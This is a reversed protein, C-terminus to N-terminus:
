KEEPVVEESRGDDKKIPSGPETEVLRVQSM